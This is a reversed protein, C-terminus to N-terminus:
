LAFIGSTNWAIAADGGNPTFPFATIGTDLYVILPWTTNSGANKRYLVLAEVTVGTVANFVVNDGKFIGNVISKNLIEKPTGIIGTLSSYFQHSQNFTYLGTDVLAVYVGTAGEASTLINNTNGKCIEQKWLSYIANAM